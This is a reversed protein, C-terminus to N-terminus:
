HLSGWDKGIEVSVKLPVNLELSSEMLERVLHSFEEADKEAVEFLLEDHIQLLMSADFKSKALERQIKLMATKVIDAGSGQIPTNVAIRQASMKEMKNKSTIGPILRQRGLLTKTYGRSETEKVTQDIFSKIGSYRQFYKRIFEKAQAQPIGLENALRFASMGYMVGFNITKAIRRESALVESEDKDFILSATKSHVDQNSRFAETLGPDGSLHALIVLELQSYDASVFVYGPKPKFAKRIRRGAEDKIPINQLNPDKSSFRGTATGIQVFRTHIRGTEEHILQPLAEVYTSKLKVMGRNELVLEPVRDEKALQELVTTDTSYGTKTKKIPTLKREEFLVQQLQKTSNINFEHGVLSYIEDEVREIERALEVSYDQLESKDLFIGDLEMRCLLPILPMELETFLTYLKKEKLEPEFCSYLRFTIDADEAAYDVAIDLDVSDFTEGKPVIDKFHITSYGLEREALDDMNYTNATTDLLWAAVMTDFSFNKVEVGWRSLVKIDYKANQGIYFLSEDAFLPIFRSRIDNDEFYRKGGAILPVYVASGNEYAFSFGVPNAYMEDINDTEIDFAFTGAQKLKKLYDDLANVDTLAEYSGKMHKWDAKVTQQELHTSFNVGLSTAISKLGEKVLLPAAAEGNLDEIYFSEITETIPVQEELTVLKQSLFASDRGEQIKQQVAGKLEDVHDYINELTGYETLLKAATKPGIGKVGPVNDSADGVMALYDRIQGPEVGWVELVDKANIEQFGGKDTKIITVWEDALQLLDKDGTILYCKRGEARCQNAITALIDDAEYRDMAVQPIGLLRWLEKLVPVQDHLDEPAADRNAKYAQYMEHRFTKVPSDLVVAFYKPAYADFVSLIAKMTGFVASTNRGDPSMLPNKIFAFYSRFIQGFGDLLFIPDKM